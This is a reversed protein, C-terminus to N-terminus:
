IEERLAPEQEARALSRKCDILMRLERNAKALATEPCTAEPPLAGRFPQEPDVTSQGERSVFSHELPRAM